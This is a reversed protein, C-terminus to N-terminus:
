RTSIRNAVADLVSDVERTKGVGARLLPRPDLLLRSLFSGTMEASPLLLMTKSMFELLQRMEFHSDFALQSIGSVLNSFETCSLQFLTKSRITANIRFLIMQCLDEFEHSM